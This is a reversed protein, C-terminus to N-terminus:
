DDDEVILMPQTPNEYALKGKKFVQKVHNVGFHYPLEAISEAEWIVFDAQKGVELSGVRDEMDIARAAHLTAAIMAEAPTMKLQLAALTLMMQMNECMCTGPNFDTALAVPLGSSIMRRAPGYTSAALFFDAGPLMVPVVGAELLKEDLEPPTHELHDASVAGVEVAVQAGGSNNLQDAHIKPRLGHKKGAQLIKKSEAATFVHNECFVDIFRALGNEAVRPIMEHIVLDIYKSRRDRYEDPIEHAGLFTPVIDVDHEADVAQLVELSKIEDEVSLGYGSKAEVTTTGYVLFRDFRVAVAEMLEFRDCERLDRVSFRIGGGAKSIEVYSAGQIRMEFEHARHRYFVPHTHCDVFGPTLLKGRADIVEVEAPDVPGELDIEPGIWRVLGDEVMLAGPFYEAFKWSAGDADAVPTFIKANRVLLKFSSHKM